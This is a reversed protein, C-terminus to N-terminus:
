ESYSDRSQIVYSYTKYICIINIYTIYYYSIQVNTSAHKYTWEIFM